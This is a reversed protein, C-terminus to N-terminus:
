IQSKWVKRTSSRNAHLYVDSTQLGVLDLDDLEVTIHDKRRDAVDQLLAMYKLKPGHQQAGRRSRQAGNGNEADDMFDYEESGVDEDLNM